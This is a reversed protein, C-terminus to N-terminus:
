SLRVARRITEDIFSPRVAANNYNVVGNEILQKIVYAPLLVIPKGIQFTM